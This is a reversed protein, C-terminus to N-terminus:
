FKPLRNWQVPVPAESRVAVAAAYRPTPHHMRFQWGELPLPWGDYALKITFSEPSESLGTGRGKLYAEKVVWLRFFIRRRLEPRVRMLQERERPSFFHRAISDIDVPLSMNELDIGVPGVRTIACAMLGETHTLNFQLPIFEAPAAIAPKGSSNTEFVWAAPDVGTHISLASRTLMRAALYEARAPATKRAEHRAQEAPSLWHWHQHYVADPTATPDWKWVRVCSLLEEWATATDPDMAATKGTFAIYHYEPM